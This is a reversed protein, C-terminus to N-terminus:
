LDASRRAFRNAWDSRGTARLRELYDPLRGRIHWGGGEAMVTDFPDVTGVHETRWSDLTRM